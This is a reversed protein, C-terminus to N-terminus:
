YGYSAILDQLETQKYQWAWRKLLLRVHLPVQNPPRVQLFSELGAADGDEVLRKLVTPCPSFQELYAAREDKGVRRRTARPIYGWTHALLEPPLRAIM